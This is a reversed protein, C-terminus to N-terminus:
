VYATWGEEPAYPRAIGDDSEEARIAGGHEQFWGLELLEIVESESLKVPYHHIADHEAAVGYGGSYHRSLISLGAITNSTKM